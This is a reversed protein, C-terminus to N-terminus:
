RRGQAYPHSDSTELFYIGSATLPVPHGMRVGNSKKCQGAQYQEYTRCKYGTFVNEEYISAAYFQHSRGHSCAEARTHFSYLLACHVHWMIYIAARLFLFLLIFIIGMCRKMVNMCHVHFTLWKRTSFRGLLEKFIGGCGPQSARGGNPYFDSNLCLFGWGTFAFM